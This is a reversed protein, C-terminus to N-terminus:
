AFRKAFVKLMAMLSIKPCSEVLEPHLDLWKKFNEQLISKIMNEKVEPFMSQLEFIVNKYNIKKINCAVVFSMTVMKESTTMGIDTLFDDVQEEVKKTSDLKKLSEGIIGLLATEEGGVKKTVKKPETKSANLNDADVPNSELDDGETTNGKSTAKVAEEPVTVDKEIGATAVKTETDDDTLMVINGTFDFTTSLQQLVRAFFKPTVRGIVEHFRETRLYRGKDLLATGGNYHINNYVADDPVDVTLYSFSTINERIKTIPVVYAMGSDTIDCVIADIHGGNIEGRLHIGYNCGVIDGVACKISGKQNYRMSIEDMSTLIFSGIEKEPANMGNIAWYVTRRFANIRDEVYKRSVVKQSIPKEKDQLGDITPKDEPNATEKVVVKFKTEDGDTVNQSTEVLTSEKSTNDITVNLINYYKGILDIVSGIMTDDVNEVVILGNELDIQLWFRYSNKNIEKILSSVREEKQSSVEFTMKKM